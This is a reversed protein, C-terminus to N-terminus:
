RFDDLIETKYNYCVVRDDHEVCAQSTADMDNKNTKSDGDSDAKDPIENIKRDEDYNQENRENSLPEGSEGNRIDPIEIHNKHLTPIFDNAQVDASLYESSGSSYPLVDIDKVTLPPLVETKSESVTTQDIHLKEAISTADTESTPQTLPAKIEPALLISAIVMNSTSLTQNEQGSPITPPQEPAIKSAPQLPTIDTKEAPSTVPISITSNNSSQITISSQTTTSSQITTTSQTTTSQTATSQTATSQTTTSQTATSQTTTSQTTTSQTTTSPENITSSETSNLKLTSTVPTDNNTKSLITSSASATTETEICLATTTSKISKKAKTTRKKAINKIKKSNISIKSLAARLLNNELLLSRVDLSSTTVITTPVTKTSTRTPTQRRTTLHNADVTKDSPKDKRDPIRLFNSLPKVGYGCEIRDGRSFCGNGLDIFREEDEIHGHNKDYGCLIRGNLYKCQNKDYSYGENRRADSHLLESPTKLIPRKVTEKLTYVDPSNFTLPDYRADGIKPASEVFVMVKVFIGYILLAISM